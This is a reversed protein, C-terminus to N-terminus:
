WSHNNFKALPNEANISIHQHNKEKLRDTDLDNSGTINITKWIIWVYMYVCM